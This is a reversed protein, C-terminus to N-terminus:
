ENGAGSTISKLALERIKVCRDDEQHAVLFAKKVPYELNREKVVFGEIRERSEKTCQRPILNEAFDEVFDRDRAGDRNAVVEFYTQVHPEFLEEQGPLNLNRMITRMQAMSMKSKTKPELLKTLWETKVTADPIAAACGLAYRQGRESKDHKSEQAILGKCSASGRRCLTWIMQWRLDPDIVKNIKLQEQLSLLGGPSQAVKAAMTLWFKNEDSGPKSNEIQKLFYGEFYVVLENKEVSAPMYYLASGVESWWRGVLNELVKKLIMLDKESSIQAKVAQAYKQIPMKQDIVMNWLNNWVMLRMLPDNVQSLNQFVFELSRPDFYTKLYAYDNYNPFILKPCKRGALGKLEYSSGEMTVDIVESIRLNKGEGDFVGVQFAHPRYSSTASKLSLTATRVKENECDLNVTLSDVGAEQLWLKTWSELNHRTHEQLSNIFDALSANQFGYKKIYNRVGKQFAGKGIYYSLQKVVSAGKGYTIGDFTGRADSTSTVAKAEIPHTTVLQDEWYAWQKDSGFFDRWIEKFETAEFQAHAAMYTAFSENLWLDNWWKMTVINGFWMHAMEHLIVNSADLLQERTPKSRSFYRENFTVNAVNEMAGSVAEPVVTQDYKGFPYEYDFYKNYFNLGQKTIKFWFEHNVYKAFSKRAFLRLPLKGHHDNWVTFPGAALSFLYTSVRPSTAFSWRKTSGKNKKKQEAGTSVVKWHSPATVALTLTAKLDPQDFCPFFRNAHYPEFHTYIYTEGDAPDRYRHLGVGDSAYPHQYTIEVLNLGKVLTSSSLYIGTGDYRYDTIPTKNIKIKEVTGGDFDFRLENPVESLSFGAKLTGSFKEDRSGVSIDLDYVVESLIKSRARAESLTLEHKISESAVDPTLNNITPFNGATSCGAVWILILFGLVRLKMHGGFIMRISMM